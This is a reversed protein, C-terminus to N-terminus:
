LSVTGDAHLTGTMPLPRNDTALMRDHYEQTNTSDKLTSDPIVSGAHCFSCRTMTGGKYTVTTTDCFKSAAFSHCEGCSDPRATRGDPVDDTRM